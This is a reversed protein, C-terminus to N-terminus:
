IPMPLQPIVVKRRSLFDLRRFNSRRPRDDFISFDSQWSKGDDAIRIPDGPIRFFAILAKSLLERQKQNTRDASPSQWGLRGNERAFVRLLEWQKNPTGNRGDVLGM